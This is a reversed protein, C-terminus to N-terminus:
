KTSHTHVLPTWGRQTLSAYQM